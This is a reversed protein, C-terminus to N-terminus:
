DLWSEATSYLATLVWLILFDHLPLILLCADGHAQKAKALKNKSTDFPSVAISRGGDEALLNVIIAGCPVSIRHELWNFDKLAQKCLLILCIQKTCTEGICSLM